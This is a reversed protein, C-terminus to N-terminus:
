EMLPPFQKFLDYLSIPGYIPYQANRCFAGQERSIHFFHIRESHDAHVPAVRLGQAGLSVLSQRVEM